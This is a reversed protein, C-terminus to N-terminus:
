TEKAGVGDLRLWEETKFAPLQDLSVPELDVIDQLDFNVEKLGYVGLVERRDFVFVNDIKRGDTLIANVLHGQKIVEPFKRLKKVLDKKLLRKEEDVYTGRFPLHKKAMELAQAERRIRADEYAKDVKRYMVIILPVLLVMWTGFVATVWLIPVGSQRMPGVREAIFWTWFHSAVFFSGITLLIWVIWWLVSSQGPKKPSASAPSSNAASVSM